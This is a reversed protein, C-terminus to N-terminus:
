NFLYLRFRFRAGISFNASQLWTYIYSEQYEWYTLRTSHLTLPIPNIETYHIVKNHIVHSTDALIRKFQKISTKTSLKAHMRSFEPDFITQWIKWHGVSKWKTLHLLTKNQFINYTFYCNTKKLPKTNSFMKQITKM